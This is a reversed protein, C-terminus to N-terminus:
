RPALDGREWMIRTAHFYETFRGAAIAARAGAMLEQYYAINVMTLLVAGLLLRLRPVLIAFDM